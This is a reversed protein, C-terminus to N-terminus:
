IAGKTMLEMLQEPDMSQADDTFYEYGKSWQMSLCVAESCFVSKTTRMPNRWKRKLWNGLKVVSMGILGKYNYVTGLYELAVKKMGEDLSHVPTFVNVVLNQKKFQDYPILRFGLEHAEMVMNIDWDMDHYLFWTHSVTSKMVKQILWSIPNFNKPRSFGIQVMNTDGNLNQGNLCMKTIM